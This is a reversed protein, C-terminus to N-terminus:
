APRARCSRLPPRRTEITWSHTTESGVNGAADTARVGFTHPGDGLNGYGAPSACAAESGDLRCVFSADESATFSFSPSPNNSPNGPKATITTTPEVTDITWTYTAAVGTNGALDTARVAFAHQGDILGPYTKPAQCAEFGGQELRCAFVVGEENSSFAFTPSTGNSPNGPRQTITATPAATDIRWTYSAVGTNGATDTATLTFTHLGPAVNSYTTPASCAAPVATDLKCTFSSGSETATFSFSPSSDNSPDGPKQSITLAPETADITWIHSSSVGANGAQDTARVTFTHSGDGLASYTKPTSCARM